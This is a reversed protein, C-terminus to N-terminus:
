SAAMGELAECLSNVRNIVQKRRERAAGSCEFQDLKLLQRTLLELLMKHRKVWAGEGGERSGDRLEKVQAELPDVEKDMQEVRALDKDGAGEPAAPGHGVAPLVGEAVLEEGRRKRYEETEALHLKAGDKVGSAYIADGDAREKGRWLIKFDAPSLGAAKGALVKVDGFSSDAPVRLRHVSTKYYCRIEMTGM